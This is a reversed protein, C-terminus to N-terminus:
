QSELYARGVLDFGDGAGLPGLVPVPARVRVEVVQLDGEVVVQASVDQAFRSSVSQTILGRTRVAGAEPSSGVRAGLRAGESACAVLTNRVHLTLGVQLASVFLLSVVASVLVFDVM